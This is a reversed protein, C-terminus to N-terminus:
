GHLPAADSYFSTSTFDGVRPHHEFFEMMRTQGEFDVSVFAVLTWVWVCVRVCVCVCVGVRVGLRGVAWCGLLGVAWSTLVGVQPNKRKRSQQKKIRTAAAAGNKSTKPITQMSTTRTRPSERPLSLVASSAQQRKWASTNGRIWLSYRSAISSAGVRALWTGREQWRRNIGLAVQDLVLGLVGTASKTGRLRAAASRIMDAHWLGRTDSIM